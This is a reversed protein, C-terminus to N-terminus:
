RGRRSSSSSNHFTGLSPTAGCLVVPCGFVTGSVVAVDRANFFPAREQKYSTEHEEDVVILGLRKLPAFVASRVGIVVDVEGRYARMWQDRRQAPTLKSHATQGGILM